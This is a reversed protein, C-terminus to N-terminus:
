TNLAQKFLLFVALFIFKSSSNSFLALEAHVSVVLHRKCFFYNMQPVCHPLSDGSPSHSPVHRMRSSSEPGGRNGSSAVHQAPCVYLSSLPYTSIGLHYHERILLLWNRQEM